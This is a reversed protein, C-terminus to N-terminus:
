SCDKVGPWNEESPLGFVRCMRYFTDIESDGGIVVNGLVLEGFICGISWIDVGTGYQRIGLLLEPARYSLTVVEMTYPRMPLCYTRAMGMDALVLQPEAPDNSDVLINGPKIDRHMIRNDHLYKGARLM